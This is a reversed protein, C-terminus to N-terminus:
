PLCICATKEQARREIEQAVQVDSTKRIQASGFPLSQIGAAQYTVKAKHDNVGYYPHIKKELCVRLSIFGKLHIVRYM